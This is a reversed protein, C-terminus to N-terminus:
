SDEEAAVPAWLVEEIHDANVALMALRDIGLAIGSSEPLGQELANIFDEDVPYRFGYLKEKKDMDARFRRRQEKADTLEGFANALEMGCVYLEFRDALRPDKPDPRSLAAMSIPYGTLFTARGVGLRTEIRELFIRFFIDEWSDDGRCSIGRAEAERKLLAPDPSLPDKITALLDIEAYRQFAEAVTIQEAPVRTDAKQGRGQLFDSGAARAALKLIAECDRMLAATSEGARYWELMTFEPHHLHSRERNRFCRAFQFIRPLGSTLLKKMTFEPSTHLYLTEAKQGQPSEWETRFAMLHPELGPSKQLIPTEVELFSEGQFYARIAALM